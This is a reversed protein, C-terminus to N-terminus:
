DSGHSSTQAGLGATRGLDAFRFVSPGSAPAPVSNSKAAQEGEREAHERYFAAMGLLEERISVDVADRAYDTCLKAMREYRESLRTRDSTSGIM